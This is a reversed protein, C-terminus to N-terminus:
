YYSGGRIQYEMPLTLTYEEKSLQYARQELELVETHVEDLRCQGQRDYSTM